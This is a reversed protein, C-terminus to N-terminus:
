KKSLKRIRHGGVEAIYFSGQTDMCIGTPSQFRASEVSGDVYGLDKGVVTTVIGNLTVKRLKQNGMDAVILNGDKDLCIGYPYDFLATNGTGDAFGKKDGALTTVMM